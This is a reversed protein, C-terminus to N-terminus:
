VVKKWSVKFIWTNDHYPIQLYSRLKFGIKTSYGNVMFISHLAKLTEELYLYEIAISVEVSRSNEACDLLTNIPNHSVMAYPLKIQISFPPEEMCHTVTEELFRELEVKGVGPKKLSM